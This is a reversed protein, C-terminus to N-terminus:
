LVRGCNTYWIKNKYAEIHNRFRGHSTDLSWERLLINANTFSIQLGILPENVTKKLGKRM